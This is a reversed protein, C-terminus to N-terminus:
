ENITEFVFSKFPRSLRHEEPQAGGSRGTSPVEKTSTACDGGGDRASEEPHVLAEVGPAELLVVIGTYMRASGGLGM